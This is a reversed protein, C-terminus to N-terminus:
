SSAITSVKMGNWAGNAGDATGAGEGNMSETNPTIPKINALPLGRTHCGILKRVHRSPGRVPHAFRAAAMATALALTLSTLHPAQRVAFSISQRLRM